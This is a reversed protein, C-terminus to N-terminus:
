RRENQMRELMWKNHPNEARTATSNRLIECKKASQEETLDRFFYGSTIVEWMNRLRDALKHQYASSVQGMHTAIKIRGNYCAIQEIGIVFDGGVPCGAMWAYMTLQDAWSKDIDEFYSALNIKTGRYDGPECKRHMTTQEGRERLKLYGPKPSAASYYGNVKFDKIVDLSQDTVFFLDPKGFIPVGDVTGVKGEIVGTVDIEFRPKVISKSVETLLDFLAGTLRYEEMLLLGAFWAEERLPEEVQKNFLTELHFPQGEAVADEGELEKVLHNKIMADFASGVAMPATQPFRPMREDQCYQLFYEETSREFISLASPSIYSPHSYAQTKMPEM